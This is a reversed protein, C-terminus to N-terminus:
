SKGVMIQVYQISRVPEYETTRIRFSLWVVVWDAYLETPGGRGNLSGVFFRKFQCFLKRSEIRGKWVSEENSVGVYCTGPINLQLVRSLKLM